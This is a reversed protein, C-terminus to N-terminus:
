EKEIAIHVTIEGQARAELARYHGNRNAYLADTLTLPVSCTYRCVWGFYRICATCGDCSVLPKEYGDWVFAPLMAAIEGEGAYRLTVGDERVTSSEELATGDPLTISWHAAAHTDTVEQARLVYRADKECAFIRKGDRIVGGCISMPGPNDIDVKYNAPTPPAPVSLCITSPADKKHIRGLGNCDYRFDANTDYELRYDGFKLFTKHFHESTSYVYRGTEAICPLPEISDDAFLYALYAFTATTVMYKNFYAYGECGFGSTHHYRNKVHYMHETSLARFIADVALQAARKCAGARRLDGRQKHLRAEYEFMAAVHGEVGTMQNSRGGFAIEGTVSQLYPTHDSAKLLLDRLAQAHAGDYGMFLAFALQVRTVFDYVMPEHPDRYMGNEDFSFLQSAVQNDIFAETHAFGAHVRTQESTGAFAAWNGIPAPPVSAIASYVDYPSFSSMAAKWQALQEPPFLQAKELELLCLVIERVSFENGVTASHYKHYAVPIEACCLDMIQVFLDRLHPVRGHALLVGINAAMRPFGHEALGYKRVSAIYDEIMPRTYVNVATEMIDLYREKM